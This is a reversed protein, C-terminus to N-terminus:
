IVDNAENQMFFLLNVWAKSYESVSKLSYILLIRTRDKIWPNIIYFHIRKSQSFLYIFNPNCKKILIGSICKCKLSPEFFKLYKCLITILPVPPPTSALLAFYVSKWPLANLVRNKRLFHLNIHCRLFVKLIQINMICRFFNRSRGLEITSLISLGWNNYWECEFYKM